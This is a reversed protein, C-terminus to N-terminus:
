VHLRWYNLWRTEVRASGVETVRVRATRSTKESTGSRLLRVAEFLPLHLSRYPQYIEPDESGTTAVNAFHQVFHAVVPLGDSGLLYFHQMVAPHIEPDDALLELLFTACLLQTTNNRARHRLRAPFANGLQELLVKDNAEQCQLLVGATRLGSEDLRLTGSLNAYPPLDFEVYTDGDPPVLSGFDRCIDHHDQPNEAIFQHAVATIDYRTAHNVAHSLVANHTHAIMHANRLLLM